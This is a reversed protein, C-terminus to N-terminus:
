LPKNFLGSACDQEYLPPDLSRYNITQNHTQNEIYAKVVDLSAGGVSVVWYNPSWFHKGWLKTKIQAWYNNRLIRSINTKLKGVLLVAAVKPHVSVMMHIHDREGDFELLKCDAMICCQQLIAHASELIECTM